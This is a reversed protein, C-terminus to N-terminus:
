IGDEGVQREIEAMVEDRGMKEVCNIKQDEIRCINAFDCYKCAQSDLGDIPEAAIYGEYLRRGAKQLKKDLFAFIKDFDQSALFSESVSTKPIKPIFKGANDKEMAKIIREDSNIVGNMRTKSATGGRQRFAPMYLVGAPQSGYRGDKCLAYLYLLMQMNQGILLDPLKFDRHGTKYDVVRVYGEFCDVRDVIGNLKLEGHPAVDVSIEPMDGGLGIKLECKVPEFDSQAFESALRKAVEKLSRTVTRVIFRM